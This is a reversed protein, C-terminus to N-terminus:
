IPRLDGALLLASRIWMLIQPASELVVSGDGKEKEGVKSGCPHNPSAWHVLTRQYPTFLSARIPLTWYEM